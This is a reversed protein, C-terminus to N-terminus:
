KGAYELLCIYQYDRPQTVATLETELSFTLPLTAFEISYFEKRFTVTLRSCYMNEAKQTFQLGMVTCMVARGQDTNQTRLVIKFM